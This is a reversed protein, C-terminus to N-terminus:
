VPDLCRDAPTKLSLLRASARMSQAVQNIRAWEATSLKSSCAIDNKYKRVANASMNAILSNPARDTTLASTNSKILRSTRGMVLSIVSPAVPHHLRFFSIRFAMMWFLHHGKLKTRFSQSHPYPFSSPVILFLARRVGARSHTACSRLAPANSEVIIASVQLQEARRILFYSQLACHLRNNFVQTLM